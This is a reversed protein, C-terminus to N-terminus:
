TGTFGRNPWGLSSWPTSTKSSNLAVRAMFNREAAAEKKWYKIKLTKQNKVLLFLFIFVLLIALAINYHQQYTSHTHLIHCASAGCALWNLRRTKIKTLTHLSHTGLILSNKCWTPGRSASNKRKKKVYIMDMTWRQFSPPSPSKWEQLILRKAVIMRLVQTQKVRTPLRHTLQSCGFIDLTPDLRKAAAKINVNIEQINSDLCCSKWKYFMNVSRMWLVPVNLTLKKCTLLMKPRTARHLEWSTKPCFMAQWFLASCKASCHGTQKWLCKLTASFIQLRDSNFRKTGTQLYLRNTFITHKNQSYHHHLSTYIEISYRTHNQLRELPRLHMQSLFCQQVNLVSNFKM